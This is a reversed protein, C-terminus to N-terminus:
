LRHLLPVSIERSRIVTKELVPGPDLPKTLTQGEVWNRKINHCVPPNEFLVLSLFTSQIAFAVGQFPQKGLVYGFCMNQMWGTNNNCAHSACICCPPSTKNMDNLAKTCQFEECDDFAVFKPQTMSCGSPM